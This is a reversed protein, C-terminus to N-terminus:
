LRAPAKEEMMNCTLVDTHVELMTEDGADIPLEGGAEPGDHAPPHGRVAGPVDWRGRPHAEGPPRPQEGRDVEDGGQLGEGGPRQGCSSLRPGVPM